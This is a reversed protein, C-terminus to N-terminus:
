AELNPFLNILDKEQLPHSLSSSDKMITFAVFIIARV